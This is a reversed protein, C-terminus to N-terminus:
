LTFDIQACSSPWNPRFMYQTRTYLLDIGTVLLLPKYPQSINLIGRQGFLRSMSPPLTTLVPRARSGLFMIKRSRTSMETLTQTFGLVM